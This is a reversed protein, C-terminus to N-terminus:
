IKLLLQSNKEWIVSPHNLAFDNLSIKQREMWLVALADGIAM